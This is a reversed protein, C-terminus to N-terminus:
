VDTGEPLTAVKKANSAIQQKEEIIERNKRKLLEIEQKLAAENSPTETTTQPTEETM